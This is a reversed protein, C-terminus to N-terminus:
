FVIGSEKFYAISSEKILITEEGSKLPPKNTNTKWHPWGDKDKGVYKYYGYRSLLKCIAIHLLNIKEEKSFEQYGKGLEHVGILFLIAQLDLTNGDGFKLSIFNVLDSWKKIDGTPKSNEM